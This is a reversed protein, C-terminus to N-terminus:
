FFFYIYYNNRRSSCPPPVPSRWENRYHKFKKHHRVKTFWHFFVVIKNKIQRLPTQHYFFMIFRSVYGMVRSIETNLLIPTLTKLRTFNLWCGLPFFPFSQPGHLWGPIHSIARAVARAELHGQAYIPMQSAPPSALPYLIFHFIKKHSLDSIISLWRQGCEMQNFNLWGRTVAGVQHAWSWRGKTGVGM